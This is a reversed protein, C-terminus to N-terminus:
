HKHKKAGDACCAGGACGKDTKKPATSCATFSFLAVTSLLLLLIKM